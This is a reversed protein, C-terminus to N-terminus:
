QLRHMAAEAALRRQREAATEAVSPASAAVAVGGVSLAAVAGSLAEESHADEFEGDQQEEADEEAMQQDVPLLTRSKIYLLNAAM